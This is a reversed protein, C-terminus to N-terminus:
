PLTVSGVDKGGVTVGYSRPEPAPKPDPVVILGVSAGAPMVLARDNNQILYGPYGGAHYHCTAYARFKTGAPIEATQKDSSVEWAKWPKTLTITGAFSGLDTLVMGAMATDRGAIWALTDPDTAVNGDIKRPKYRPDSGYQWIDWPIPPETAGTPWYAVWRWDQGVDFYGSLSHYLGVRKGRRQIEEIFRRSEDRTFAQEGEVDLAYMDVDGARALFFAAQVEPSPGDHWNFHYAGTYIGAARAKAIHQAYREDATTGISARAIMFSQGALDPTTAQWKSVDIGRPRAIDGGTSM